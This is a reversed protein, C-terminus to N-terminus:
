AAKRSALMCAGLLTQMLAHGSRRNNKADTSKLQVHARRVAHNMLSSCSYHYIIVTFMISYFQGTVLTHHLLLLLYTNTHVNKQSNHVLANTLPLLWVFYIKKFPLLQYRSRSACSSAGLQSFFGPLICKHNAFNTNTLPNRLFLRRAPQLVGVVLAHPPHVIDDHVEPRVHRRGGRGHDALHGLRQELLALGLAGM